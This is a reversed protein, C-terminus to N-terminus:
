TSTTWEEGEKREAGEQSLGPSLLQSCRCLGHSGPLLVPYWLPWSIIFSALTGTHCTGPFPTRFSIKGSAFDTITLLDM